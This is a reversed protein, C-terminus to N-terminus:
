NFHVWYPKTLLYLLAPGIFAFLVTAANVGLYLNIGLAVLASLYFGYVGIKKWLLVLAAMVFNFIALAGMFYVIEKTAGPYIGSIAFPNSFYFYATASNALLMLFIFANLLFGRSKIPKKEDTLLKEM